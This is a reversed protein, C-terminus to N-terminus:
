NNFKEYIAVTNKTRSVHIETGYGSIRDASKKIAIVVLSVAGAILGIVGLFSIFAHRTVWIAAALAKQAVTHAITAGTASAEAM